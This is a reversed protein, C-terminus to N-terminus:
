RSVIGKYIANFYIFFSFINGFRIGQTMEQDDHEGEDEENGNEDKEEKAETLSLAETHSCAQDMMTESDPTQEETGDEKGDVDCAERNVEQVESEADPLSPPGTKDGFARFFFLM